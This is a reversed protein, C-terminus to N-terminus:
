LHCSGDVRLAPHSLFVLHALEEGSEQADVRRVVVLGLGSLDQLAVERRGAELAAKSGGRRWFEDGPQRIV